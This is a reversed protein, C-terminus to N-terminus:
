STIPRIYSESNSCSIFFANGKMFILVDDTNWSGDDRKSITIETAGFAQRISLAVLSAYDSSIKSADSKVQSDFSNARTLAAKYDELFDLIQTNISTLYAAVLTNTVVYWM